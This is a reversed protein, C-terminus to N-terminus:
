YYKESRVAGDTLRFLINYSVNLINTPANIRFKDETSYVFWPTSEEFVISVPKGEPDV